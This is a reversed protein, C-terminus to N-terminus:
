HAYRDGAGSMEIEVARRIAALDAEQGVEDASKKLSSVVAERVVDHLPVEKSRVKAMIRARRYPL